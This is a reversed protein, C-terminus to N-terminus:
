KMLPCAVLPWCTDCSAVWTEPIMFSIMNWRWDLQPVRVHWCLPVGPQTCLVVLHDGFLEYTHWWFRGVLVHFTPHARLINFCKQQLTILQCWHKSTAGLNDSCEDWGLLASLEKTCVRQSSTKWSALFTFALWLSQWHSALTSRCFRRRHAGTRDTHLAILSEKWFVHLYVDTHKPTTTARTNPSQPATLFCYCTFEERGTSMCVLGRPTSGPLIM